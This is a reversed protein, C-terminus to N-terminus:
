GPKLKMSAQWVILHRKHRPARSETENQIDFVGGHTLEDWFWRPGPFRLGFKIKVPVPVFIMKTSHQSSIACYRAQM